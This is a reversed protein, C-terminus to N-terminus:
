PIVFSCAAGVSEFRGFYRLMSNRENVVIWDM